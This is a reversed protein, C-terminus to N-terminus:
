RADRIASVRRTLEPLENEVVGWVINLDIDFYAHVLRNRLGRM